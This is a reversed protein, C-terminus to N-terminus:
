TQAAFENTRMIVALGGVGLAAVLPTVDIGLIGLAVTVGLAVIAIKLIAETLGTAPLDIQGSYHRVIYAAINALVLSVSVVILAGLLKHSYSIIPPDLQSTGVAIQIGVIVCWLLSPGRTSKLIADDLRTATKRSWRDLLRYAFDVSVWPSSSSV